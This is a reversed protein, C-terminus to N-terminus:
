RQESEQLLRAYDELRKKNDASLVRHIIAIEQAGDDQLPAATKKNSNGSLEDLSIGFYNAIKTLNAVSLEKTRQAKLDTLIGRSMNIESCLKGPTINRERCLEEIIDHMNSM